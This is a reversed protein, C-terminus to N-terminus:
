KLVLDAGLMNFNSVIKIDLPNGTGLPQFCIMSIKDPSHTTKNIVLTGAKLGPSPPSYPHPFSNMANMAAIYSEGKHIDAGMGIVTDMLFAYVFAAQYYNYVYNGPVLGNSASKGPGSVWSDHILKAWQNPPNNNDPYALGQYWGKFASGAAACSAATFDIGLNISKLGQQVAARAQYATDTGFTTWVTVDPNLGKVQEVTASYDTMGLPALIWQVFEINLRKCMARFYTEVAANYNPAVDANVFVFRKVGKHLRQVTMVMGDMQGVPFPERTGYCFPLGEFPGPIPGTGGGADLGFMGYDKMIPPCSGFGFLNSNTFLTAGDLGAQKAAYIEKQPNGSDNDYYKNQFNLKGNTWAAVHQSGLTFGGAMQRGSADAGSIPFHGETHFNGPGKAILHTPTGLLDRLQAGLAATSAAAATPRALATAPGALGGAAAVMGGTLQLFRRRSLLSESTNETDM